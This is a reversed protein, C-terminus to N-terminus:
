LMTVEKLQLQIEQMAELFVRKTKSLEADEHKFTVQILNQREKLTKISGEIGPSDKHIKELAKLRELVITVHEEAEMGKEILDYLYDIKSKDYNLPKMVALKRLIEELERNFNKASSGIMDLTKVDLVEIMDGLEDLKSFLSVFRNKPDWHGIM